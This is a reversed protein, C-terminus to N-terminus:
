KRDPNGEGGKGDGVWRARDFLFVRPCIPNLKTISVFENVHNFNRVGIDM